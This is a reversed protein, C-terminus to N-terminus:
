LRKNCLLNFIYSTPYIPRGKWRVNALYQRWFEILELWMIFRSTIIRPMAVKSSESSCAGELRMREDINRIIALALFGEHLASSMCLSCLNWSENRPERVQHLSYDNIRCRPARSSRFAPVLILCNQKDM